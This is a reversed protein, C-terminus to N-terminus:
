IMRGKTKGRQACGDARKSASGVSGGKAYKRPGLQRAAEFAEQMQGREAARRAEDIARREVEPRPTMTDEERYMKARREADAIAAANDDTAMPAPREKRRDRSMKDM